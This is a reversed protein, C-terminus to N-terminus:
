YIILTCMTAMIDYRMVLGERASMSGKGPNEFVVVIPSMVCPLILVLYHRARFLTGNRSTSAAVRWCFPRYCGGRWFASGQEWFM